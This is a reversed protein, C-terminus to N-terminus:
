IRRDGHGVHQLASGFLGQPRFLMLVILIVGYLGQRLAAASGPPLDIFKFIEPLFTLVVAGALPGFLTGAGGVMVMLLILISLDIDFSRPDVYSIYHAYLSGAVAALAGSLAFISIKLGAVNKGLALCAVEDDRMARVARGYPSHMLKWCLYVCFTLVSACLLMYSTGRLATGFFHIPPIGPIGASGNTVETWNLAVVTFVIQVAISVILLYIGRVRWSPLAVLASLGAALLMGSILAIHAGYGQKTILATAYAGVGFFAGHALALLGAYGVVLDLSLALLGFISLSTLLHILYNV